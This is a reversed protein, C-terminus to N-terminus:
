RSWRRGRERRRRRAAALGAAAPDDENGAYFATVRRVDKESFVDLGLAHVYSWIARYLWRAMPDPVETQLKAAAASPVPPVPRLSM